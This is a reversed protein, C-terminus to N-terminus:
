KTEARQLRENIAKGIGEKPIPYISIKNKNLKDLKRLILYILHLKM